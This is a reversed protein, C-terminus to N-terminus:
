ARDSMFALYEGNPSVRATMMRSTRGARERTRGLRARDEGSLAAVLKRRGVMRRREYHRMYLNCTGISEEEAPAPLAARPKPRSRATAVFYVYSGDESAGVVGGGASSSGPVNASEGGLGEPTLDVLKVTVPSEPDQGGSLEAVYLDPAGPTGAIAKSEPTLQQSDTFFVKSGDVSATEFRPKAAGPNPVGTFSTSSSRKRRPRTASTCTARTELRSSSTAATTPSRTACRGHKLAAWHWTKLRARSAPPRRARSRPVEPLLSVLQVHEGPGWEYVGPAAKWSKFVVHSLDPTAVQTFEVGLNHPIKFGGGFPHGPANEENVLPLYGPNAMLTGNQLAQEFNAAETAEPELPPNARLYISKEQYEKGEGELEKEHPSVPPALAPDTFQGAHVSGM